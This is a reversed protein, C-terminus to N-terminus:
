RAKESDADTGPAVFPPVLKLKEATTNFAAVLASFHSHSMFVEAVHKIQVLNENGGQLQGLRLRVDFTSLDITVNNAYYTPVGLGPVQEVTRTKPADPPAKASLPKKKAM